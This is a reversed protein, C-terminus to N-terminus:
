RVRSGDLFVLYDTSLPAKGLQRLMTAAQGRHYSSHNVVHVLMEYLPYERTEGKVNVYRIVEDLRAPALGEVFERCAAEVAGWKEKLIALTPVEQAAPLGRPSRGLWRELWIWEASYIHALTERVSPFSGGLTRSLEEPSLASVPELTRANAWRNYAFLNTIDEVTEHMGSIRARSSLNRPGSRFAGLALERAVLKLDTLLFGYLRDQGAKDEARLVASPHLTALVKPALPNKLLRGREQMLRFGAGLLAKSATAGLCVLMEPQIAALEADLWPRCAGIEVAGPTQHIRRKPTRVFKFHKVVNTVYVEKRPIGAEVLARDLVEGAPGVFPAGQLDEQDGPQEGVLMARAAAPGRGFVTQTAHRFLDCGQCSAAARRLEELDSTRPVFAEAGPAAPAISAAEDAFRRLKQLDPEGQRLM